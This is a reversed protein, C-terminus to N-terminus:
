SHYRSDRYKLAAELELNANTVDALRRREESTLRGSDGYQERVHHYREAMRDFDDQLEDRPRGRQMEGSFDSAAAALAGVDRTEHGTSTDRSM